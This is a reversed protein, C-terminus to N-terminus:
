ASGGPEAAGPEEDRVRYKELTADWADQLDVGTSNAICVLAFLVDALEAGIEAAAEDPKIRKPGHHQNLARALEGVEEALRAFNNIPPWYEGAWYRQAWEDVQRQLAALSTAM